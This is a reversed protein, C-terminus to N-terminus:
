LELNINFYRELFTKCDIASEPFLGGTTKNIFDEGNDCFLEFFMKDYASGNCKRYMESDPHRELWYNFNKIYLRLMKPREMFVQRRAKQNMLPCAMCGLRREVHFSGQEDYYMPACKIGREKIFQEVDEDTWELIPMYQSSKETKSYERCVEPEQYRKERSKSESRRVGIICRDLIKYEKLYRCCFRAWRSPTGNERVLQFFDKKPRVMEVGMERAHGITGPPDITTNKYIARFPIGAMKALELIVDSDKGGSYALEIDSDTPISRLFRISQDVKKQLENTM